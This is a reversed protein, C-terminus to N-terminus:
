FSWRVSVVPVASGDPRALAAEPHLQLRLSSMREGRQERAAPALASYTGFYGLAGGIASGLLLTTEDETMVGVSAGALAGALTGLRNLTAQGVTFDTDRVLRDALYIGAGAGLMAAATTARDEDPESDVGQAASVAAGGVYAGLAAATYLLDADGWTYSRREALEHAAWLGGAAGALGLAAGYRESGSEDDLGLLIATGLGLGLGADGGLVLANATGASMGERAAWVYGGVGEAVSALIAMGVRAREFADDTSMECDVRCSENFEEEGALVEHLLLGHLVGRTVGYRSLNAEGFSVSAGSTLAFPLFFSGAATLLYLGGAAGAEEVGLAYPLAWGHFLVGALTTQGILVYRGEQNLGAAPAREALRATVDRRLAAAEGASLPVRVRAQRGARETTIELVFSSDPAQFLRAERFDPYEAVWLGLRTALARDVVTLRGAEDLPAQVEQAAAPHLSTLALLAALMLSRPFGRM